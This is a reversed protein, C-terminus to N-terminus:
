RRRHEHGAEEFAEMAMTSRTHIGVHPDHGIVM